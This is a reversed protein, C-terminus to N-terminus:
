AIKAKGVSWHMKLYKLNVKCRMMGGHVHMWYGAHLDCCYTEINTHMRVAWTAVMMLAIAHLATFDFLFCGDLLFCTNIVSTTCQMCILNGVRM